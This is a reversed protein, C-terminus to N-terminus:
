LGFGSGASNGVYAISSNAGGPGTTDAEVFAELGFNDTVSAIAAPVAGSYVDDGTFDMALTSGGNQGVAPTVDSSYLPTTTARTLPNAGARQRGHEPEGHQRESSQDSPGWRM